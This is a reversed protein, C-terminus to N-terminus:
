NSQVERSNHQTLLGTKPDEQNAIASRLEAEAKVKSYIQSPVQGHFRTHLYKELNGLPIGRNSAWERIAFIELMTESLMEQSAAQMQQLERALNDLKVSQDRITDHAGSLTAKQHQIRRRLTRNSEGEKIVNAMQTEAALEVPEQLAHLRTDVDELAEKNSMTQELLLDLSLGYAKLDDKLCQYSFSISEQSTNMTRRLTTMDRGLEKHESILRDIWSSVGDYLLKIDTKNGAIEEMTLEIQAKISSQSAQLMRSVHDAQLEFFKRNIEIMDMERRRTQRAERFIFYFLGTLMVIIAISNIM